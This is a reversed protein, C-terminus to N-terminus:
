SLNEGTLAKAKELAQSLNSEALALHNDDFRHASLKAIEYEAKAEYIEDQLDELKAQKLEAETKTIANELEQILAQRVRERVGIRPQKVRERKLNELTGPLLGAKQAALPLAREKSIQNNNAVADILRLAYDTTRDEKFAFNNMASLVETFYPHRM